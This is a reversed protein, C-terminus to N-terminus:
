MTMWPFPHGHQEMTSIADWIPVITGKYGIESFTTFCSILDKKATSWVSKNSSDEKQVFILYDHKLDRGLEIFEPFSLGRKNPPKMLFSQSM